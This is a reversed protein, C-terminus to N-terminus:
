TVLQIKLSGAAAPLPPNFIFQFGNSLITSSTFSLVNLAFSAARVPYPQLCLSLNMSLTIYFHSPCSHPFLKFQMIYHPQSALLEMIFDKRMYALMASPTPQETLWSHKEVRM